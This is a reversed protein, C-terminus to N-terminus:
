RAGGAPRNRARHRASLVTGFHEANNLRGLEFADTLPLVFTGAHAKTWDEAAERSAFFYIFHCFKRVLESSPSQFLPATPLLFSAVTQDPEVSEIGRPSVVLRIPRSTSEVTATVDLLEPLFLADWACWTSLRVGDAWFRHGLDGISLGYFGTIRGHDDYFVLSALGGELCREVEPVPLGLRTPLHEPPVPEGTRLEQFLAIALDQESPSFRPFAATLPEFVERARASAPVTDLGREAANRGIESAHDMSKAEM